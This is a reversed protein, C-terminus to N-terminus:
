LNIRTDRTIVTKRANELTDYDAYIYTSGETRTIATYAIQRNLLPHGAQEPLLVLIAKYGSGQSKHITIAYATEISEKPLLHLPYFIYSEKQFIGQQSLSRENTMNPSSDSKTKIEKKVMLYKLDNHEVVIGSDGNYLCFLNQNKTLILLQGTFYEDDSTLKQKNLIYSCVEKNITEVGQLGKREACLIRATCALEWLENIKQIEFDKTAEHAKHVLQTFFTDAWSAIIENLQDERLAYKKEPIFSTVPFEGKAPISFNNQTKWAKWETLNALNKELPTEEQMANKLRGIDSNDNFRSSQKLAAVSGKKNALLEGLVAGAQVSPLQDKDGLIFIRAKEPIAELLSCFLSIDIMSAEDIVFISKEDFQNEANYRFGNTSPNFSLLRHITSSQSNNLKEFVAHAIDHEQGAPIANLNLRSLTESISEKMRDAAKGSPAALYLSYDMIDKTSFLEWLLYCVVTTKGTGPGGTIILNENLGRLIADIQEDKLIMPTHGEATTLKTFYERIRVKEEELPPITNHQMILKIRKEIILKAKFYKAAFLWGEDIVFPKSFSTTSEDDYYEILNPLLQRSIKPLGEKIIAEFYKDDENKQELHNEILLLGEWKKQWKETLKVADMPICINGDDLQSFYICFVALAEFEANPELQILVDLVKEWVLSLCNMNKLKECFEKLKLKETEKM